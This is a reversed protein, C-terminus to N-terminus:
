LRKERQELLAHGCLELISEALDKLVLGLALLGLVGCDSTSYRM